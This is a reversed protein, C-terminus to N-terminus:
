KEKRYIERMLSMNEQTLRVNEAKVEKLETELSTIKEKLTAIGSELQRTFVEDAKQSLGKKSINSNRIGLIGTLLSLLIAIATGLVQFDIVM